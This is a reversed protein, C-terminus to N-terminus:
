MCAYRTFTEHQNNYLLKINKSDQLLLLSTLSVHNFCSFFHFLHLFLTLIKDTFCPCLLIGLYLFTLFESRLNSCSTTEPISRHGIARTWRLGREKEQVFANEYVTCDALYEPYIDKFFVGWYGWGWTTNGDIHPNTATMKSQMKNSWATVFCVPQHLRKM